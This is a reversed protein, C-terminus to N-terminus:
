CQLLCILASMDNPSDAITYVIDSVLEVGKYLQMMKVIVDAQFSDFCLLDFSIDMHGTAWLM